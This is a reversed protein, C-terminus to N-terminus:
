NTCHVDQHNCARLDGTTINLSSMVLTNSMNSQAKRSSTRAL